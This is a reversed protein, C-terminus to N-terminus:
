AGTAGIVDDPIEGEELDMNGSYEVDNEGSRTHCLAKLVSVPARCVCKWIVALGIRHIWGVVDKQM